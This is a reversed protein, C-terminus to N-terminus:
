LKRLVREHLNDNDHVLSGEVQNSFPISLYPCFTQVLSPSAEVSDLPGPFSSEPRVARSGELFGVLSSAPNEIDRDDWVIRM